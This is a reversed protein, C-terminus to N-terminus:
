GEVIVNIAFSRLHEFNPPVAGVHLISTVRHNWVHVPVEANDSKVAKALNHEEKNKELQKKLDMTMEGVLTDVLPGCTTTKISQEMTSKGALSDAPPVGMTPKNVVEVISNNDTTMAVPSSASETITEVLPHKAGSSPVHCVSAVSIINNGIQSTPPMGLM